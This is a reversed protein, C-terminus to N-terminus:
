YTYVLLSEKYFDLTDTIAPNNGLGAIISYSYSGLSENLGSRASVNRYYAALELTAFLLDDPITDYGATYSVEICGRGRPWPSDRYVIGANANYWYGPNYIADREDYVEGDIRIETLEVIPRQKLILANSGPADYLERTYTTEEFKRNCYKEVFANVGGVIFNLRTDESTDTLGLYNKLQILTIITSL